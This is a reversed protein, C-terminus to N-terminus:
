IGLFTKLTILPKRFLQMWLYTKIGKISATGRQGPMIKDTKELWEAKVAVSPIQQESLTVDFGIKTVKAPIASFPASDLRIVAKSGENILGIDSVPTMIRIETSVPNAIRLILEGTRMYAGILADPDDLIVTGDAPSKFHSIQLLSEIFKVESEKREVIIKQEPIKAGAQDDTYSAGELRILEARASAVALIAEDKKKELIDTDYSFLKNGKKVTQGPTVIINKIIGDFPAFIYYPNKPIVQIPATVNSPIPLMLFLIFAAALWLIRKKVFIKKKQCAFLSAFILPAAAFMADIEEKNWPTDPKREILLAYEPTKKKKGLPMWLISPATSNDKKTKLHIDKKITVPEKKESFKKRLSNITNAFQNDESAKLGGSVSLIKKRGKIAILITKSAAFESNIKNVLTTAAKQFSDEGSLESANQALKCFLNNM